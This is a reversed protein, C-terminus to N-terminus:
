QVIGTIWGEWVSGFEFCGFPFPPVVSFGVGERRGEGEIRDVAPSWGSETMSTERREMDGGAAWDGPGPRVPEREVGDPSLTM